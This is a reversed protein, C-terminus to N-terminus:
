FLLTLMLLGLLINYKTNQEPSHQSVGSPTEEDGLNLVKTGVDFSGLFNEIEVLLMPLFFGKM